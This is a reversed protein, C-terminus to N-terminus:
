IEERSCHLEAQEKKVAVVDNTPVMLPGASGFLGSKWPRMDSRSFKRTETVFSTAINFCAEQRNAGRQRGVRNRVMQSFGVIM